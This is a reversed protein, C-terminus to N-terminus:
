QPEELTDPDSRPDIQVAMHSTHDMIIFDVQDEVPVIEVMEKQRLVLCVGASITSVACVYMYFAYPSDLLQIAASATVPGFVSGIGYFLLLASSVNVVDEPDFLDYARAMAVPYICFMFGGFLGTGIMFVGFGNQAALLMLGSVLSLLGIILPIVISRDFKDSLYGIPWQILLGGLVTVTMFWSIQSVSLHINLCFVPGMTYFSSILLGSTFCGLLALPAKKVITKLAISEVPVMQPHISRTLAVPLICSVMLFGIVFFLTPDRVDGINLLQQGIGGGLYTMVMYISFVRGRTESESCESLWSEIVMFLGFVAIGSFFRFVAWAFASIFWGHLMVMATFVAAFAAFSRIHGFTRILRGCYLTGVVSGLFYATLILGTVQTSFGEITLRLSLFTALLGLSMALLLMASYLAVFSRFISAM